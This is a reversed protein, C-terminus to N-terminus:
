GHMFLLFFWNPKQLTNKIFYRTIIVIKIKVEFVM